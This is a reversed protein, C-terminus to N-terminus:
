KLIIAWRKCRERTEWMPLNVTALVVEKFVSYGYPDNLRVNDKTETELYRSIGAQESSEILARLLKGGFGLGQFATAMGIIQLYIFNKGSYYAERDLKLPRFIAQAKRISKIGPFKM